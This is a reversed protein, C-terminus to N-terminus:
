NSDNASSFAAQCRLLNAKRCNNGQLAPCSRADKCLLVAAAALFQMKLERYYFSLRWLQWFLLAYNHISRSGPFFRHGSNYGERWLRRNACNDHRGVYIPWIKGVPRCNAAFPRFPLMFLVPIFPLFKGSYLDYKLKPDM